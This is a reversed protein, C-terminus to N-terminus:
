DHFVAVMKHSSLTIINKTKLTNSLCELPFQESNLKIQYISKDLLIFKRSVKFTKM